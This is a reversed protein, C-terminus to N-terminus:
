TKIVVNEVIGPQVNPVATGGGTSPNVTTTFSSSTVTHTHAGNLAATGSVTHTHNGALQTRATSSSRTGGGITFDTGGTGQYTVFTGGPPVDPTHDHDGVNNTSGSVVHTHGTHSALVLTVLSTGATHSHAPLHQTGLMTNQVGGSNGLKSGDIGSGALTVLGADIGNYNQRSIINKGRADPLTFTTSGNGNGHPCIRITAGTASATAAISMTITTPSIGTIVATAPIGAVSAELKAGILGLNTFDDLAGSTVTIVASGVTFNGTFAPCIANFLNAYTTRNQQSGDCWLWPFVGGIAVPLRVEATARITGPRDALVLSLNTDQSGDAAAGALWLTIVGASNIAYIMGATAYSPRGSVDSHGSNEALDRQNLMAALASGSTASAVITGFSYRSM